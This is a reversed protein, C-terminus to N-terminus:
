DSNEYMWTSMIEYLFQTITPATKDRVPKAESWKTFYDICVVLHNFGDVEPLNCVDVGIQQIVENKVPISQLETSVKKTKGQKQCQDCKKIFEEVDGKINHWFFRYAM